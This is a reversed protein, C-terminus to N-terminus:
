GAPYPVREIGYGILKANKEAANLADALLKYGEAGGGGRMDCVGAFNWNPEGNHWDVTELIEKTGSEYAIASNGIVIYVTPQKM